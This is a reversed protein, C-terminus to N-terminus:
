EGKPALKHDLAATILWRLAETRSAFRYKFRFDDIRALLKEEFSINVFQKQADEPMCRIYKTNLTNVISQYEYYM